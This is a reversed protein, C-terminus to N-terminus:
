SIIVDQLGELLSAEFSNAAGWDFRFLGEGGGGGVYHMRTRGAFSDLTVTLTLRNSARWYHKEYILVVCQGAGGANLTYSDIQEGTISGRVIIDDIRQIADFLCISLFVTNEM